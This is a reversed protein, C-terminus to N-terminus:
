STPQQLAHPNYIADDSKSSLFDLKRGQSNPDKTPDLSLTSASTAHAPDSTAAASSVAAGIAGLIGPKDTIQFFMGAEMAQREQQALRIREARAADDEPNLHFSQDAPSLGLSCERDVVPKGLDGPLPEGLRIKDYSPPLAALGEPTLKRDTNYVDGDDHHLLHTNRLAFWTTGFIAIAGITAIGILLNRKFRVVKRPTARLVLTEPDTKPQNAEAM